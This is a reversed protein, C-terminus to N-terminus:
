NINKVTDNVSNMLLQTFLEEAKKIDMDQHVYFKDAVKLTNIKLEVNSATNSGNAGASETKNNNNNNGGPKTPPTPKSDDLFSNKIEEKKEEKKMYGAAKNSLFSDLASSANNVNELGPIEAILDLIWKFPKLVWEIIKLGLWKMSDGFNDFKTTMWAVGAVIAGIIVPIGALALNISVGALAAKAAMVTLVISVTGVAAAVGYIIYTNNGLWEMIGILKDGVYIIVPALDELLIAVLEDFKNNVAQIKGLPTNQLNEAAGKTYDMVKKLLIEQAEYEKNQKILENVNNRTESSLNIGQEKLAGMAGGVDSRIEKYLKAANQLGAENAGEIGRFSAVDTVFQEYESLQDMTLGLEERVMEWGGYIPKMMDSSFVTNAQIDSARKNYMYMASNVDELTSYQNRLHNELVFNADAAKGMITVLKSMYMILGAAMLASAAAQIGNIGKSVNETSKATKSFEGRIKKVKKSIRDKLQLIYNISENAAM